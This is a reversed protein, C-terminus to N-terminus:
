WIPTTCGGGNSGTAGVQSLSAGECWAFASKGYLLLGGATLFLLFAGRPKQQQREMFVFYAASLVMAVLTLSVRAKWLGALFFGACLGALLLYLCDYEMWLPVIERKLFRRLDSFATKLVLFELSVFRATLLLLFGVALVWRLMFNRYILMILLALFFGALLSKQGWTKDQQLSFRINDPLKQISKLWNQPGVSLARMLFSTLFYSLVGWFMNVGPFYTRQLHVVSNIAIRAPNYMLGDNIKAIIYTHAAWAFVAMLLGIMITKPLNKVMGRGLIALLQLLSQPEGGESPLHSVPTERGPAKEVWLGAFPDLTWVKGDPTTVALEGVARLFEEQSILRKEFQERLYVYRQGAEEFNM